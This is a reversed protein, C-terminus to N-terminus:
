PIRQSESERLVIVEPDAADLPRKNSTAV